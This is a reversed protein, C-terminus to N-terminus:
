RKLRESLFQRFEADGIRVQVDDSNAPIEVDYILSPTVKECRAYFAGYSHRQVMLIMGGTEAYEGMAKIVSIEIPRIPM